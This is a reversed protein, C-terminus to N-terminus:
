RPAARLPRFVTADDFIRGDPVGASWGPLAIVPLPALRAPSFDDGAVVAAAAADVFTRGTEGPPLASPDLPVVLAKATLAPYPAVLRALLGHGVVFARSVHEVEARREWFTARWRHQRLGEVIGTDACVFLLGSEDLLTAADRVRTRRNDSASDGAAVHLANLQAKTRPFALWARANCLDHHNGERTAIEGAEAVRREYELAPVGKGTAAIFRLARGDPLALGAARAWTNLAAVSPPDCPDFARRWRLFPEFPAEAFPTGPAATRITQERRM